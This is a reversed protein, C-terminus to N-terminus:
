ENSGSARLARAELKLSVALEPLSTETYDSFFNSELDEEATDLAALIEVRRRERNEWLSFAEQVIEVEHKLRGSAIVQRVFAEQDLTLDVKMVLPYSHAVQTDLM